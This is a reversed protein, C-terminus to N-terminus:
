PLKLFALCIAMPAADARTKFVGHSMEIDCEWEGDHWGLTLLYENRIKECIEWAARIDASYDPCGNHSENGQPDVWVDNKPDPGEQWAKWGWKKAVAENIEQSTM